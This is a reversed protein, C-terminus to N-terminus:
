NGGGEGVGGDGAEPDNKSQFISLRPDKGNVPPLLVLRVYLRLLQWFTRGL